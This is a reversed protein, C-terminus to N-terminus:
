PERRELTAIDGLPRPSLSGETLQRSRRRALTEDRLWGDLFRTSHLNFTAVFAAARPHIPLDDRGIRGGLYHDSEQLTLLFAPRAGVFDYPQRRWAYGSLGPAQELDRTGVSVFTPLTLAAFDVRDLLPAFAGAGSLIIVARVNAAARRLTNGTTVERFTAGGLTQAVLGGFSHGTAAIRSPDTRAALGDVSGLVDPLRDLVLRFDELRWEFYRPEVTGRRVGLTVSDRHTPALVVYGARAWHDLIDDYADGSSYAGHSFLVIPLREGRSPARVHVLLERQGDEVRLRVRERQLADPAIPATGSPAATVISSGVLLLVSVARVLGLRRRM